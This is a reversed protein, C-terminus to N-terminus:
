KLGLAARMEPKADDVAKVFDPTQRLVNAIAAGAMKSAEIDTLYHMGAIYRSYGFDNARAYWDAQKEPAIQTLTFAYIEGLTTHGSPYAGSDKKKLLPQVSEDAIFPRPRGWEKKAPDVVAGETAGIRDFLAQSAPLKTIDINIDMGALFRTITEEDDAIAKDARDKPVSTIFAKYDAIEKKSYEGDKAPPPPMIKTLPVEADTVFPKADEAYASAAFALTSVFALALARRSLNM